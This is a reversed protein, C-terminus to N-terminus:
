RPTVESFTLQCVGASCPDALHSCGSMMEDLLAEEVVKLRRASQHTCVDM